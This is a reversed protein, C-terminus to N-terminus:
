VKEGAGFWRFSKASTPFDPSFDFNPLLWEGQQFAEQIPKPPEVHGQIQGTPTYIDHFRVDVPQCNITLLQCNLTM